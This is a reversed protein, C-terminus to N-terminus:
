LIYIRVGRIGFQWCESETDMYLDMDAWGGKVFGGTDAAIAYGYVYQGDLSAVWLKTGYPIVKPDVAVYGVAAPKGSATIGGGYYATAVGDIYSKYHAPTGNETLEFGEPLPLNSIPTKGSVSFVRTGVARIENIPQSILTSTILETDVCNFGVFKDRYLVNQTGYIGKSVIRTQGEFLNPDEIVTTGYDVRELVTRDQYTCRLIEVTDGENLFTGPPIDLVDGDELTLGLGYVAEGAKCGTTRFTYTREGDKVYVDFARDIDIQMGDYAISGLDVSITDGHDLMIGADAITNAVSGNTEVTLETGDIDVSAVGSKYVTLRSNDGGTLSTVSILDDSELNVGADTVIRVPDKRFSHIESEANTGAVGVNYVTAALSTFTLTLSTAFIAAAAAGTCIKRVSTRSKKNLKKFAQNTM